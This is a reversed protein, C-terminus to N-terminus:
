EVAMGGAEFCILVAAEDHSPPVGQANAWRGKGPTGQVEIELSVPRIAAFLM